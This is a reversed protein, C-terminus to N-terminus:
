IPRMKSKNLARFLCIASVEFDGARRLTAAAQHLTTGTTYVDDVLVIEWLPAHATCFVSENPAAKKRERIRASEFMRNKYCTMSRGIMRALVEAQNFRREQLRTPGLPIPVYVCGSAAARAPASPGTRRARCDGSLKFRHM